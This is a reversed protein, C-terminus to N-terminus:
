FFGSDDTWTGVFVCGHGEDHEVERVEAESGGAREVLGEFLGELTRCFHDHKPFGYIRLRARGDQMALVEVDGFDAYTSWLTRARNLLREPSAVTLMVGAGPIIEEVNDAGDRGIQRLTEDDADAIEAVEELIATHLTYEVESASAVGQRSVDRGHQQDLRDFLADVSRSGQREELWAVVMSTSAGTM